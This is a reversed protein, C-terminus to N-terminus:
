SVPEAKPKPPPVYVTCGKMLENLYTPVEKRDVSKGTVKSPHAKLYKSIDILQGHSIPNGAEPAELSPEDELQKFNEDETFVKVAAAIAPTM